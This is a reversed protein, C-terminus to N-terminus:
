DQEQAAYGGRHPTDSNRRNKQGLIQQEAQLWDDLAGQRIRRQFIEYARAAILAYLDESVSPTQRGPTMRRVPKQSTKKSQKLKIPKM